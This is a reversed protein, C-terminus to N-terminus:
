SHSHSETAERRELEELYQRTIEDEPDLERARELRNRAAHLNGAVMYAFGADALYGPDDPRQHAAEELAAVAQDVKGQMLLAVGLEHQADPQGPWLELARRLANEAAGAEGSRRATLGLGFHAEWLEPARETLEVLSRRAADLDGERAGVAVQGADELRREDEPHELGFRLRRAQAASEVDPSSDLVARLQELAERSQDMVILARAYNLRTAPSAGRELATRYLESARTFQREGHLHTAYAAPLTWGGDDQALGEEFAARASADDGLTLHAQALRAFLAGDRHGATRARDFAAVAGPADGRRLLAAGLEAQASGYESSGPKVRRLRAVASDLADSDAYLRALRVQDADSLPHLADALEFAVVAQALLGADRRLEGLMYHARWSRPNTTILDELIAMARERADREVHEAAVYLLREEAAEFTPDIRIAALYSGTAAREREEALAAQDHRLVSAAMDLDMGVLLARYAQADVTLPAGLRGLVEETLQLGLAKAVGIAIRGEVYVVTEDDIREDLRAMEGADSARVLQARLSEGEAAGFLAHTASVGRAYQAALTADPASGFV